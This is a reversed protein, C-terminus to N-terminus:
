DGMVLEYWLTRHEPGLEFAGQGPVALRRTGDPNLAHLTAGAPATVKLPVGECLTPGDGWERGVSTRAENWGMNRNGCAAAATILYRGPEGLAQGDVANLMVVSLGDLSTAGPTISIGGAQVTEGQAFGILGACGDGVYTVLGKGDDVKWQVDSGPATTAAPVGAGVDAGVRAALWDDEGLGKLDPDFPWGASTAFHELREDLSLRGARVAGAPRIGGKLLLASCAPHTALKM